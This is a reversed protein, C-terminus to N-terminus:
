RIKENKFCQPPSKNLTFLKRLQMQCFYYQHFSLQKLEFNISRPLFYMNKLNQCIKVSLLLHYSGIVPHSGDIEPTPLPQRVLM